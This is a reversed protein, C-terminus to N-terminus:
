RRRRGHRLAGLGALLALLGVAAPPLGASAALACGGSLDVGYVELKRRRRETHELTADAPPVEEPEEVPPPPLPNPAALQPVPAPISVAPDGLLAWTDIVDEARTSEAALRLKATDIADGLVLLDDAFLADFLHEAMLAQPAPRTFGTSAWFAVAGGGAHRVWAEGMANLEPNSGSFDGSLCNLVLGITPRGVNTLLDVDSEHAPFTTIRHSNFLDEDAWKTTSGHGAYALLLAGPANVTDVIRQRVAAAPGDEPFYARTVAHGAPLRAALAEGMARFDAIDADDAVLLAHEGWSPDFPASEYAELKDLFADAQAADVVPIRGLRLDPLVDDGAVAAYRNDCAAWSFETDVMYPPVLNPAGSGAADLFDYHGDGLLCVYKPRPLAWSEYAHRLFARIAEPDLEGFAFEDMIEDVYVVASRLGRGARWAALRAAPEALSRDTIVIYDAGHSGQRLAQTPAHLTVADPTRKAAGTVILLDRPGAAVLADATPDFTLTHSAGSVLAGDPQEVAGTDEVRAGTLWRPANPESVDWVELDGTAFNGARLPGAAESTLRLAARDSVAQLRRPYSLEVWDILVQDGAPGSLAITVTNSGAAAGTVEVERTVATLRDFAVTDVTAGNLRVEVTRGALEKAGCLRYRLRVGELPLAAAELELALDAAGGVSVTRTFWHDQGAPHLPFRRLLLQQEHRAVATTRQAPALGLPPTADREPVRPGPASGWGLWYASRASYRPQRSDVYTTRNAQGYLEIADTPDLAGDGGDLVRLPVARGHHYLTLRAPDGGLDFGAAALEAGTLRYVADESVEIKLVGTATALQSQTWEELTAAPPGPPAPGLTLDARIRSHYDLLGLDARYRVPNVRLSLLTREGLKALGVVELASPPWPTAGDHAAPIPGLAGGALNAPLTYGAHTEGELVLDALAASSTPPVELLLIRTPVVPRDLETSDAYGEIRALDFTGGEAAVVAERSFRPVAIDITYTREAVSSITVGLGEHLADPEAAGDPGAAQGTPDGPAGTHVLGSAGPPLTAAGLGGAPTASAPGRLTGRGALDVEELLYYYTRGNTVTQDLLYYSAGTPDGSAVVLAPSVRAFDRDPRESRYVDFGLTDLESATTWAVLVEGDHPTARLDALTVATTPAAGNWHVTLSQVGFNGSVADLDDDGDLDGLALRDSGVGEGMSSPGSFASGNWLYFRNAVQDGNTAIVLDLDSDGDLDGLAAAGSVDETSGTLTVAAAFGGAQDNTHLLDSAGFTHATVVDVWGDGNVDGVDLGFASPTAVSVNADTPFGGAGDNLFVGLGGTIAVAWVDLDGDRDFDALAVASLQSTGGFASAPNFGGFLGDNRYVRSSEGANVEVIELDGDGDLDGLAIAATNASGLSVDPSGAFLGSGQNRYVHTAGAWRGIVVDLDGDGDLDGLAVGRAEDGPPDPGFPLPEGFGGQGDGPHVVHRRGSTTHRVAAVIDLFGDGTVDGTAVGGTWATLSGHPFSWDPFTAPGLGAAARFRMVFPRAPRGSPDGQVGSDVTVEVPEGPFFDAPPDITVTASTASLNANQIDHAQQSGRLHVNDVTVTAAAVPENFTLAVTGAPSADHSEQDPNTTTVHIVAVGFQESAVQVPYLSADSASPIVILDGPSSVELRTTLGAAGVAVDAVVHLYVIPAPGISESLGSFTVSGSTFATTSGLQVAGGPYGADDDRLLKVNSYLVDASAGVGGTENFRIQNLTGALSGLTYIRFTALRVGTQPVTVGSPASAEPEVVYADGNENWHVADALGADTGEVCDLDGDGDLDGLAVSLGVNSAGFLHATAEFAGGSWRHFRAQTDTAFVVDLDGDGDVDGLACGNSTNSSDPIAIGPSFGGARDNLFLGDSGSGRAVVLDVWGDGDVDGVDIGQAAGAGTTVVVRVDDFHGAGANLHVRPGFSFGAFWADLDGDRDFDALRVAFDADGSGFSCLPQTEFTGGGSNRYVTSAVSTSNAEVLDLDGDGDLDGLAVGFIVNTSGILADPVAPPGSGTNLFLQNAAGSMGVVIDLFGDGDVDGLAVGRATGPPDAGFPIPIGFGGLGDGPWVQHREGPTTSSVVRVMDLNGDGTVDGVAVESTHDSVGLSLSSQDFVGPGSGAAARFRLVLPQATWGTTEGQLGSTVSVEVVEGPHPSTPDLSLTAGGGGSRTATATGMFGRLVLTGPDVTTAEVDESFTLDLDSGVPLPLRNLDDLSPATATVYIRRSRSAQATGGYAGQNIRSGHPQTEAGFDVAPDGADICPSTQADTVFTTGNWRGAESQLHYDRQFLDVHTDDVFLPDAELSDPDPSNLTGQWLALTPLTAAGNRAALAGSAGDVHFTNWNSTGPENASSLWIAATGAGAVSLVNNTILFDSSGNVMAVAAFNAGPQTTHATNNVIVGFESPQAGGEPDGGFRICRAPGYVLNGRVVAHSGPGAMWIGTTSAGFVVCDEVLAPNAQTSSESGSGGANDVGQVAIQFVGNNAVRCRRVTPGLARDAIKIGGLTNDRVDCGEIACQQQREVHIGFRANGTVTCDVVRHRAVAPNTVTILIGTDASSSVECGVVHVDTGGTIEVGYGAGGATAASTLQLDRIEVDSAGNVHVLRENPNPGDSISTLLTAGVRAGQIVVPDGPAGSDAASLSIPQDFDYAGAEIFVWDGPGLPGYAALVDAVTAKPTAPSLGDSADNGAATCVTDNTTAGDNVYYVTGTVLTLEDLNAAYPDIGTGGAGSQDSVAARLDYRGTAQGGLPTWPLSARYRGFGDLASVTLTGAGNTGTSGNAGSTILTVETTDDPERVALTVRFTGPAPLDPDLFEVELAGGPGGSRMFPPSAQVAGAAIVPPRDVSATIQLEDANGAYTDSIQSLGDRVIARLDYLGVPTTADPPDWSLTANFNGGGEDTITPTGPLQLETTDDPGRVWLEVTFGSSATDSDSWDVRLTTTNGGIADISAPTATTDVIVPPDDYEVELDVEMVELTQSPGPDPQFLGLRVTEDGAGGIYQELDLTIDGRLEEATTGSFAAVSEWTQGKEIFLGGANSSSATVIPTLRTVVTKPVGIAVEFVFLKGQNSSLSDAVTSTDDDVLGALNTGSTLTVGDLDDPASANNLQATFYAVPERTVVVLGWAVSAGALLLVLAGAVIRSRTGRRRAVPARRGM